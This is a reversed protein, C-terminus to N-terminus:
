DNKWEKKYVNIFGMRNPMKIIALSEANLLKDRPIIDNLYLLYATVAYIENNNLIGPRDMPMSRRIFDFLTTAYPWYNGIIKDPPNDTLTHLAGALEEASGGSGELGHCAYCYQQYLKQGVIADGQGVPLGTGDIFVDQNWAKILEKSAPKGLKVPQNECAQLSLSFILLLTIRLM